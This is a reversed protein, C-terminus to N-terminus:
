FPSLGSCWPCGCGSSCWGSERWIKSLVLMSFLSIFDRDLCGTIGTPATGHSRSVGGMTIENLLTKVLKGRADFIKLVASRPSDLRPIAFEITTADTFSNPTIRLATEEPLVATKDEVVPTGPDVVLMSTYPTVINYKKGLMTVNRVLEDQEGYMEIEELLHDIKMSAWMRPVFPHNNSGRGFDLTETLVIENTVQLGTFTVTHGGTSRYRGLVSLQAGAYLNPLIRPFLDYPELEEYHIQIGAILPYSIKTMFRDMISAISDDSNINRYLGNNEWALRKLFAEDLDNGIGFTFLSM